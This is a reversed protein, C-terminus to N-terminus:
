SGSALGFGRPDAVIHCSSQDGPLYKSCVAVNARGPEPGVPTANGALAASLTMGVAAGASNQGSGAVAAKFAHQGSNWAIAAAYIPAPRAAPSAGLLIGSGPAIRGTGFLNGMSLACAVAGGKHDIVVFSTSAPLAPLSSVGRSSAVAATSANLAATPDGGYQMGAAVAGGDEAAPLLAVTDSGSTVNAPTALAPLAARMNEFRVGGGVGSAAEAFTHATLGQYFDGVGRTSIQALMAGLDTQIIKQGEAVPTGNPVFIAAAQDDGALPGAVAAVDRALARSAPTGLRAAAEAPAVMQSFPQSGYRASLLYLGRALMPVAGPREGGGGGAVPMFAIVEPAGHNPSNEGPQYALCAGGAGLSARSPLTVSLMFGLATAADAANGGHALVDRATVVANPEDAAAGGIYTTILQGPDPDGGVVAKKVSSLTGCGALMLSMASALAARPTLSVGFNTSTKKV